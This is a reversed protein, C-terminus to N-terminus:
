SKVSIDYAKEVNSVFVQTQENNLGSKEIASLSLNVKKDHTLNSEYIQDLKDSLKKQTNGSFFALKVLGAFGSLFMILGIIYLFGGRFFIM